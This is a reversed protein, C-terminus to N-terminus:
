RKGITAIKSVIWIGVHLVNEAKERDKPPDKGDFPGNGVCMAAAQHTIHVVAKPGIHGATACFQRLYVEHAMCSNILIMCLRLVDFGVEPHERNAVVACTVGEPYRKQAYLRAVKPNDIVANSMAQLGSKIFVVVEHNWRESGRLLLRLQAAARQLPEGCCEAAWLQNQKVGACANKMLRVLAQALHLLSM